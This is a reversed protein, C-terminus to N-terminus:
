PTWVMVIETAENGNVYVWGQLPCGPPCGNGLTPAASWTQYAMDMWNMAADLVYVHASTDVPVTRLTPNSNTIDGIGDEETSGPPNPGFCMLDFDFSDLGVNVIDGFWIGNPLPGAGPSCGSGFLDSGAHVPEPFYAPNSTDGVAYTTATTTTTAPAATTTPAATTPPATTATGATTTTSGSTTTAPLTTVPAVTTPAVTTAVVTTQTGGAITTESTGASTCGAVVLTIGVALSM